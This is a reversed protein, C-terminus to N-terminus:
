KTTDVVKVSEEQVPKAVVILRRLNTGVPTCTILTLRQEPTQKLVDINDPQVEKKETVEYIYKEQEYYIVIKDGINVQHLLAFVDKFRGPDWPFYSSHGTIVTNGNEGPLSTGPYHVVGSELAKQMDKELANWDHALLNKSSVRAIPINKNIRPIIIRNDIPTVELALAPIQKKQLEINSSTKLQKGSVAGNSPNDALNNLEAETSQVNGFYKNWSNEAIQYYASYNLLFFGIVLILASAFIQKAIDIFVSKANRDDKPLLDLLKEEHTKQHPAEEKKHVNHNSPLDKKIDEDIHIKFFEQGEIKKAHDLHNYVIEEERFPDKSTIGDIM